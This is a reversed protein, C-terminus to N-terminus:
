HAALEVWAAGGDNTEFLRGYLTFAWGQSASVFSVAALTDFGSSEPPDLLAPWRYATWTTGGDATAEIGFQELDLLGVAWANATGVIAGISLLDGPDFPQAAAAWAPHVLSAACAIVGRSGGASIWTRGGDITSATATDFSGACGHLLDAFAVGGPPAGPVVHWSRGGDSTAVVGTSTAVWGHTPDAFSIIPDRDFFWPDVPLQGVIRWTQGGDSTALVARGDGVVGLGFGLKASVFSIDLMPWSVAFPYARRWSRGGDSTALLFGGASSGAIWGHRSDGFSIDTVSAGSLGSLPAHSFTRGGNTTWTYSSDGVGCAPCQGIFGADSASAIEFPGSYSDIRTLNPLADDLQGLAIQWHAGRDLTRSVRYDQSGAAAGGTWMVWASTGTCKVTALWGENVFDNPGADVHTWLGGGDFTRYVASGSAAWGLSPSAFCVSELRGALSSVRWHLGGDITEELRGPGTATETVGGVVAWGVEDSSFAIERFGGTLKSTTWVRGGDTTRVLEDATEGLPGYALGWAHSADLAWLSHISRPGTWETRWTGGGNTTGIIVDDGGAWGTSVNVFAVSFLAPPQAKQKVTADQVPVGAPGQGPSGVPASSPAITLPASPTPSAQSSALPSASPEGPEPSSSPAPTAVTPSACGAVVVALVVLARLASRRRM